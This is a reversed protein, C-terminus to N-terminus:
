AQRGLRYDAISSMVKELQARIRASPNCDSHTKGYVTTIENNTLEPLSYIKIDILGRFHSDLSATSWGPEISEVKNKDKEENIRLWGYKIQEMIYQRYGHTISGLIISNCMAQEADPRTCLQCFQGYIHHKGCECCDHDKYVCGPMLDQYTKYYENGSEMGKEFVEHLEQLKRKQEGCHLLLHHETKLDAAIASSQAQAISEEIKSECAAKGAPTANGAICRRHMGAAWDKSLKLRSKGLGLTSPIRYPRWGMIQFGAGKDFSVHEVLKPFTDSSTKRALGGPLAATWDPTWPRLLHLEDLSEALFALHSLQFLKISMCTEYISEGKGEDVSLLAVKDFRGHIINLLIEHFKLDGHLHIIPLDCEKGCRSANIRMRGWKESARRLSRSDVFFSKSYPDDWMGRKRTTYTIRLIMDGNKDLVDNVFHGQTGEM